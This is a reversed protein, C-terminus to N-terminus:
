LTYNAKNHITFIRITLRKQEEIRVQTLLAVTYIGNWAKFVRISQIKGELTTSLTTEWLKHPSATPNGDYGRIIYDALSDTKQQAVTAIFNDENDM